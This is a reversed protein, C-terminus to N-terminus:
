DMRVASQNVLLSTLALLREDDMLPAAFQLGLPLGATTRGAPVTVTPLGAHTWPLNMVPNGTATIGAPAGGPAAPMVFLDIGTSDMTKTMRAMLLLRHERAQAVKEPDAARGERILEATRSSYLAEHATFWEKHVAAIEAAILIRHLANIRVIDALVPVAKVTCGAAELKGLQTRFAALAEPEAQELYPGEPVGLVPMRTSAPLGRWGRLLLSAALILGEM